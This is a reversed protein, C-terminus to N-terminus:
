KRKRARGRKPATPKPEQSLHLPPVEGTVNVLTMTLRSVAGDSLHPLCDMRLWVRSKDGRELSLIGSRSSRSKFALLHPWQNNPLPKNNQGYAQLDAQRADLTDQLEALSAIGFLDLALQNCFVLNHNSDFVALGCPLEDWMTPIVLGDVAEPETEPEQEPEAVAEPVVDVEAVSEDSETLTALIDGDVPEAEMLVASVAAATNMRELAEAIREEWEEAALPLPLYDAAGRRFFALAQTLSRLKSAVLVPIQAWETVLRGFEEGTAGGPLDSSVVMADALNVEPLAEGYRIFLGDVAIELDPLADALTERVSDIIWLRPATSIGPM